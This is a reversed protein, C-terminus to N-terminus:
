PTDSQIIKHQSSSGCLTSHATSRRKVAVQQGQECSAVGKESQWKNCASASWCGAAPVGPLLLQLLQQLQLLRRSPQQCLGLLMRDPHWASRYQLSGAPLLPVALM